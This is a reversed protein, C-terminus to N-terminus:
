TGLGIRLSPFVPSSFVLELRCPDKLEGTVEPFLPLIYSMLVFDM